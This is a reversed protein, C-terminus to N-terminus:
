PLRVKRFVVFSVAACVALIGLSWLLTPTMDAGQAWIDLDQETMPLLHTFRLILDYVVILAGSIVTKRLLLVATLPPAMLALDSLAHLALRSWVYVAPLRTYVTGAFIGTLACIGILNTLFGVIFLYLLGAFFVRNRSHGIYLANHCSRRDLDLALFVIAFLLPILLLGQRSSLVWRFQYPHVDQFVGILDTADSEELQGRKKFFAKATSVSMTSNEAYSTFQSMTCLRPLEYMNATTVPCRSSLFLDIVLIALLAALLIGSRFLRYFHSRLLKTM